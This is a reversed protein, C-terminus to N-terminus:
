QKDNKGGIEDKAKIQEVLSKHLRNKRCVWCYNHNRCWVDVAKSGHYPKRHEKGHKIAQDLSM